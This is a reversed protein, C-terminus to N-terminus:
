RENITTTTTSETTTTTTTTTTTITTVSCVPSIGYNACLNEFEQSYIFGNLVKQRSTGSYLYNLWGNYGKTDPERGFFARYLITVFTENSTKRNIFEPSFIFGNAVDAGCLTGNILANVWGDLGSTDPNRGLCQQYFRTVFTRVQLSAISPGGGYIARIGNIDDIQPTEPQNDDVYGYMLSTGRYNSTYQDGLGLSHGLEHAAVRRFDFIREGNSYWDMKGSYVNWKLNRNFHIDTATIHKDSNVLMLSVAVANNYGIGCLTYNFGWGHENGIYCPDTYSSYYYYTFNSLANWSGMAQIFADNWFSSSGNAYFTAWPNQWHQGKWKYASSLGSFVFVILISVM